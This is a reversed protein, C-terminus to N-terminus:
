NRCWSGYKRYCGNIQNAIKEIYGRTSRTLARPIVLQSDSAVGEDPPGFTQDIEARIAKATLLVNRPDSMM